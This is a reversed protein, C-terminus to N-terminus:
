AGNAARARAPPAQLAQRVAEVLGSPVFPKSVFGHRVHLAQVRIVEQDVFGSMFVIPIGPRVSLLQDAVEVGNTEPMCVDILALDIRWHKQGALNMASAANQASLVRFGAGQLVARVLLLVAQDDDIVLITQADQRTVADPEM